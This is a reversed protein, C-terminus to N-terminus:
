TIAVSGKLVQVTRQDLCKAKLSLLDSPIERPWQFPIPLFKWIENIFLSYRQSKTSQLFTRESKVRVYNGDGRQMGKEEPIADKKPTHDRFIIRCEEDGHNTQIHLIMFLKGKM